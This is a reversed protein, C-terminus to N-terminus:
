EQATSDTAIWERNEPPETWLLCFGSQAQRKGVQITLGVEEAFNTMYDQCNDLWGENWRMLDQAYQGEESMAWELSKVEEMTLQVPEHLDQKASAIQWQNFKAGGVLGLSLTALLIVGSITLSMARSQATEVSTKQILARASEAISREVGQQAVSEYGRVETMLKNKGYEIAQRIRKPGEELLAQVSSTGLLILFIPDDQSIGSKQIIQLIRFRVQPDDYQSLVDELLSPTAATM